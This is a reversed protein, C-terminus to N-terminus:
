VPSIALLIKDTKELGKFPTPSCPAGQLWGQEWHIAKQKKFLLM